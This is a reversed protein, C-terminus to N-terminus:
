NVDGGGGEGQNHDQVKHIALNGILQAYGVSERDKPDVSHKKELSQVHAAVVEHIQQASGAYAADKQAQVLSAAADQLDQFKLQKGRNTRIAAFFKDEESEEVSHLFLPNPYACQAAKQNHLIINNYIYGALLVASQVDLPDGRIDVVKYDTHAHIIDLSKKAKESHKLVQLYGEFIASMLFQIALVKPPNRKLMKDKNLIQLYLIMAFPDGQYMAYKVANHYLRKEHDSSGDYKSVIMEFIQDYRGKLRQREFLEGISTAFLSFGVSILLLFSLVCRKFM